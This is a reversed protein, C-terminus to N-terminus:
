FNEFFNYLKIEDLINGASNSIVEKKFKKEYKKIKDETFIENEFIIKKFNVKLSSPIIFGYIRM